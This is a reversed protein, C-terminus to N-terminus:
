KDVVSGKGYAYTYAIGIKDLEGSVLKVTRDLEFGVEPYRHLERRLGVAYEYLKNIM